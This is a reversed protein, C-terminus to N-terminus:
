NTETSKTTTKKARTTPKVFREGSVQAKLGKIAKNAEALQESQHKTQQELSIVRKTLQIMQQIIEANPDRTFSTQMVTGSERNNTYNAM